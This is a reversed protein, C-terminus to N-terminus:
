LPVIRKVIYVYERLRDTEPDREKTTFITGREIKKTLINCTVYRDQDDEYGSGYDLQGEPRLVFPSLEGSLSGQFGFYVRGKAISGNELMVEFTLPAEDEPAIKVGCVLRVIVKNKGAAM